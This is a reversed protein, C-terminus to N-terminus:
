TIATVGFAFDHYAEFTRADGVGTPGVSSRPPSPVVILTEGTVTGQLFALVTATATARHLSVEAVLTVVASARFGFPSGFYRFHSHANQRRKGRNTNPKASSETNRCYRSVEIIGVCAIYLLTVLEMSMPVMAVASPMMAVAVAAPLDILLDSM